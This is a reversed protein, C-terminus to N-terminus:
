GAQEAEWLEEMETALRLDFYTIRGATTLCIEVIGHSNTWFPYHGLSSAAGAARSMFKFAASFGAFRYTRQLVGYTANAENGSRWWGRPIPPSTM